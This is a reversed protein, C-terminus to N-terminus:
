LPIVEVEVARECGNNGLLEEATQICAGGENKRQQCKCCAKDNTGKTRQHEATQTVHNTALVGEQHGDQDHTDGREDHADQWCVGANTNCSRHNQNGQAHQLTQRETTLVATSGGIHCLVGRLAFAAGVCRPNLGCCG